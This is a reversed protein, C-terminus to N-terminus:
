VDLVSDHLVAPILHSAGFCVYERTLWLWSGGGGVKTTYQLMSYYSDSSNWVAVLDTYSLWGRRMAQNLALRVFL